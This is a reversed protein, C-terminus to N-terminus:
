AASERRRPGHGPMTLLEKYWELGGALSEVGFGHFKVIGTHRLDTADEALKGPTPLEPRHRQM